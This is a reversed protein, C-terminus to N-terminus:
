LYTYENLAALRKASSGVMSRTMENWGLTVAFEANRAQNNSILYESIVSTQTKQGSAAAFGVM